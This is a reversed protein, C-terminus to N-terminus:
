SVTVMKGMSGSNYKKTVFRDTWNIVLQQINEGGIIINIVSEAKKGSKWEALFESLDSNDKASVVREKLSIGAFGDDGRPVEPVWVKDVYATGTAYGGLGTSESDHDLGGLQNHDSYDGSSSNDSGGSSVGWGSTLDDLGSDWGTLGYDTTGLDVSSNDSGGFAWDNFAEGADEGIESGVVSGVLTGIPGASSGVLSGLLGGITSTLGTIASSLFGTATTNSGVATTNAGTHTNNEGLVESNNAVENLNTETLDYQDVLQDTNTQVQETNEAIVDDNDTGSQGLLWFPTAGSTETAASGVLGGTEYGPLGLFNEIKNVGLRRVDKAPIVYENKHVVGAADGDAGFGTFGGDAFSSTLWDWGSSVVSGIASGAASGLLSAGSDSSSSSNSALSGTVGSVLSGMFDNVPSMIIAAAMDALMRNFIDLISSMSFDFEYIFDSLRSQVSDWAQNWRDTMFTSTEETKNDIEDFYEELAADISDVQDLTTYGYQQMDSSASQFTEYSQRQVGALSKDLQAQWKVYKTGAENAATGTDSISGKIKNLVDISDDPVDFVGADLEQATKLIEQRVRQLDKRFVAVISNDTLKESSTILKQLREQEDYLAALKEKAGFAEGNILAVAEAFGVTDGRAKAIMARWGKISMDLVRVLAVADDKVDIIWESMGDMADKVTPALEAAVENKIGAFAGKLEHASEQVDLLNQQDVSNIAVGLEKAREAEEKLARGGDELLPILKTTDNGISELYFVQEEASVNADDMAKKVAVLVDPGSLKQLETAALGVKPAISTFFDAFEGGGTAIFDGLKDSVDKSIDALNEANIGYQETAYAMAQFDQSNMQALRSLNEMERAQNGSAVVLATLAASAAGITAVGGAAAKGVTEIQKLSTKITRQLGSDDGTITFEIDGNRAM